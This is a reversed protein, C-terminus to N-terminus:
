SPSASRGRALSAVIGLACLLAFVTLASRMSAIFPEATLPSVKAEGLHLALILMVTGMSFTMGVQRMTGVVASAVGYAQREVANMIAKTNPSSFFAFGLGLLVLCAIVFAIASQTDVFTLLGVGVACLAMGISAVTRPEIRDSLRGALPSLVAQVLPQAVLVLGAQQPTLSRLKQLYLSLLFTVAFTAAYNILAALASFAFVKNHRFLGIELLPEACKLEFAVFAVLGVLGAGLLWPAYPQTLTSFAYLTSSLAVVLIATGGLDFHAGRAEAWEGELLVLTVAFLLLGVPLNIWFIARWGLYQTLMGGVFPGSSLGFYVAAVNIGLVRGRQQPPYVSILIAMGTAFIMSSGFGQLGRYLILALGSGCFAILGSAITFIAVGVLYIKKRGHIDGLRGFPISFAASVLLFAMNIWGLLVASLGLDHGISPLAVNVSSGMFPALFSTLTAVILAARQTRRPDHARGARKM